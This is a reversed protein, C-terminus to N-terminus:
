VTTIRSRNARTTSLAQSLSRGADEIPKRLGWPLIGNLTAHAIHKASPKTMSVEEERASLWAALDLVMQNVHDKTFVMERVCRTNEEQLMEMEEVLKKSAKDMELRIHEFATASPASYVNTTRRKSELPPLLPLPKPLPSAPPPHLQADFRSGDFLQVDRRISESMEAM